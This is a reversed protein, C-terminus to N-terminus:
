KKHKLLSLVNKKVIESYETNSTLSNLLDKYVKINEFRNIVIELGEIIDKLEVDVVDKKVPLKRIINKERAISPPFEVFKLGLQEIFGELITMEENELEKWQIFEVLKEIGFLVRLSYKEETGNINEITSLALEFNTKAEEIYKEKEKYYEEPYVFIVLKEIPDIYFFPVEVYLFSKCNKCQVINFRGDVIIDDMEPEELINVSVIIDYKSINNCFKCRVEITNIYSM